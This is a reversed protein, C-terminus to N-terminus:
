CDTDPRRCHGVVRVCDFVEEVPGILLHHGVFVAAPAGGGDFVDFVSLAMAGACRVRASVRTIGGHTRGRRCGRQQRLTRRSLDLLNHGNTDSIYARTQSFGVWRIASLEWLRVPSEDGLSSQVARHQETFM